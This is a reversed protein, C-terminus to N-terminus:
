SNYHVYYTKGTEPNLIIRPPEIIDTLSIGTGVQVWEGNESKWVTNSSVDVIRAGAFPQNINLYTSGSQSYTYFGYRTPGKFVSLEPYDNLDLVIEEFSGPAFKTTNVRFIDQDRNIKVHTEVGSWRRTVSEGPVDIIISHSNTEGNYYAIAYSDIGFVGGRTRVATLLHPRDNVFSASMVLGIADDDSHHSTLTAEFEFSSYVNPSVITNHRSTNDPMVFSDSTSNFYWSRAHGSANEASYINQGDTRPWTNFIDKNSLAPATNVHNLAEEPTDFFLEEIVPTTDVGYRPLGNIFAMRESLVSTDSTVPPKTSASSTTVGEIIM